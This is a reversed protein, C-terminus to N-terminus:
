PAVLDFDRLQRGLYIHDFLAFDGDLPALALGTLTFEGFDAFLDRTVLVFGGPLQGDIRLAGGFSANPAPGADYRYQAPSPAQPGFKGDHGLQVGIRQGGKKKWAFQLYRYEGPGPNQRIKAALGPLMGNFRQGPTVKVSAAGSFKEDTALAPTGNGQSLNTVFEAQDEFIALPQEAPLPAPCGKLDDLTRALYIHDFLAIEGDGPTLALGDLRFAGFDAFLDRTVETWGSPLNDDIKVAAANFGNPAPGAEYRFAPGAAGRLPGFSGNAALQLLINQGGRKKWAFRLYRYQGEGPTEAINVGLGPLKARFKQDPTVRLAAQGAYRDTTEMSAKGGGETLLGAFPGEDEFLRYLAPPPGGAVVNVAVPIENSKIAVAASRDVAVLRVNAAAGPPANFPFSVSFAFESQEPPLTLEPSPLDPPLGELTLVVPSKLQGIRSLSGTLKGTEGSGAKAEVKADGSLTLVLPSTVTMRRAPTVATAVVGKGDATLLEAQVALDFPLRPLDRPVLVSVTSSSQDAAITPAGDLRLARDLDDVQKDQNNEKITKKPVIQTTLLSLRVPGAVGAARPTQVELPLSSGLPLQNAPTGPGWNAALPLAQTGALALENALWPQYKALPGDTLRALRKLSTNPGTSEGIVTALVPAPQQDGAQLTVLADTAGAPIEEGTMTVGAPLGAVSLKIPGNYGARNARVRMVTVGQRPLPERDAFLTLSFDPQAVPTIALRYVFNDGGRGELDRLVVVLSEVGNPVTFDLGPDATQPRDDNGALEGGAKNRVSLVGDLPSGIRAALVDFRLATGPTVAVEYRDEEKAAALRGSVAMPVALRQLSDGAKPLEAVEDFDSYIVRPRGGALLGVAPWAAPFEGPVPVDTSEVKTGPPLNTSILELPSKVGRRVGLPFVLDAYYFTGVKLRFTGPGPGRYLADHLEVTYRGDAPLPVVIRADGALAATPPAYAIQVGRADLLHLVPNLEIGLRRGEVDIVVPQGKQGTFSTRLVASGQLTGTLAVPLSGIEPSFPLEPLADIGVGVPSSIGQSTALRLPYIGPSVSGDLVLEIQVQTATAGEKVKQSAIPVPLVLRPDPLLDSGSVMVTSTGLPLGRAALSSIAPAAAHAQAAFLVLLLM